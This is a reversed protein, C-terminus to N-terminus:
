FKIGCNECVRKGPIGKAPRACIPCAGSAVPAPAPLPAPPAPSSVGPPLPPPKGAERVSSSTRVIPQPPPVPRGPPPAVPKGMPIASPPREQRAPPPGLAIAEVPKGPELRPTPLEVYGDDVNKFSESYRVANPGLQIVDGNRLLVPQEIRKGNLQTGTRSHNDQLLFGGEPRRLIRLHIPEVGKAGYAIFPLQAKESTGLITEPLTLIVQRGTRFGAVVTLWAEMLIIQALGIFLGIFMGLIVFATARSSMNGGFLAHIPTFLLGGLFGGIGGGVLGNRIKRVSLDYVGEVSGIALGMLTWGVVRSFMVPYLNYIVSGLGGGLAGGIFGGGLGLWLRYLNEKWQGNAAGALIGLGGAVAAGVFGVTLMLSLTSIDTARHLLLLESILWGVFAGWGGVFASYYILRHFSM